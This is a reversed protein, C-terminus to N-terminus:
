SDLMPRRRRRISIVVFAAAGVIALGISAPEPISHVTAVYVSGQSTFLIESRDNFGRLESHLTDFSITEFNGPKTEITEGERVVLQLVGTEDEAWIGADNNPNDDDNELEAIYVRQGQSNARTWWVHTFKTSTGPAGDGHQPPAAIQQWGTDLLQWEENAANRVSVLADPRIGFNGESGNWILDPLGSVPEGERLLLELGNGREGYVARDNGVKVSAGSLEVHVTLHGQATM